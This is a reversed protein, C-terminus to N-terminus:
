AAKILTGACVEDSYSGASSECIILRTDVGRSAAQAMCWIPSGEAVDRMSSGISQQQSYVREVSIGMYYSEAEFSGDPSLFPLVSAQFAECYEGEPSSYVLNGAARANPYADVFKRVDGYGMDIDNSFIQEMFFALDASDIVAGWGRNGTDDGYSCLRVNGNLNDSTWNETSIITRYGDIIAYKAHMYPFREGDGGILYIEGGHNALAKMLPLYAILDIGLPNAELLLTVDVGRDELDCLLSFINKSSLLYLAIQVREEAAELARYIPVGGSDPFLFPTVEAQYTIKPDFDVETVGPRRTAWDEATNTDGGVRLTYYGKKVDAPPGSWIDGEDIKKNGYCVADIVAGDKMLYIEDGTNNLVLSGKGKSFGEEGLVVIHYRGGFSECKPDSSFAVTSGAPIIFSEKFAWTGEGDTLSFEFLDATGPGPNSVAIAEGYPDFACILLTPSAGDSDWSVSAPILLMLLVVLAMKADM